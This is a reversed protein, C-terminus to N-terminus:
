LARVHREYEALCYRDTMGALYDGIVRDPGQDALRARYRAPLLAPGRHFVEFLAAIIEQGRTDTRVIEPHRYVQRRLLQEVQELEALRAPSLTVVPKAQAAVSEPSSLGALAAGATAVVDGLLANLLGDLIPRRLAFLNETGAGYARRVEEAAASWLTLEGLEQPGLLGAGLADELDHCNYAIRDALDGIQAEVSAGCGAGGATAGPRDYPTAHAQMGARTGATLNLGRFPPFPHELYEVVRLSHLNHNFGGISALLRNLAVEGAHGFPAHGLDHALAIARALTANARLHRALTTAIEAVELTHTLRTRFHDSWTLSFVQTKHELRRFATSEIVRHCDLEFPTHLRDPPEAHLRSAAAEGTTAYAALTDAHEIM